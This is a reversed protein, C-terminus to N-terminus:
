DFRALLFDAIVMGAIGSPRVTGAILWPRPILGCGASICFWLALSGLVRFWTSEIPASRVRKWGLAWIHIPLLLVSVGFVQFLLDAWKAGFRGLLNHTHVTATATNWSPDASSYSVLSLTVALGLLM